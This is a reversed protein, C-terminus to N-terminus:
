KIYTPIIIQKFVVAGRGANVEMMKIMLYIYAYAYEDGSALPKRYFPKHSVFHIPYGESAFIICILLACISDIYSFLGLDRRHYQSMGEKKLRLFQCISHFSNEPPLKFLFDM